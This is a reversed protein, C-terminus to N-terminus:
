KGVRDGTHVRGDHLRPVLIRGHGARCEEDPLAVEVDEERRIELVKAVHVLVDEGLRQGHGVDHLLSCRAERREACSRRRERLTIGEERRVLGLRPAWRHVADRRAAPQGDALALALHVRM